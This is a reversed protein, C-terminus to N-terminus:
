VKFHSFTSDAYYFTIEHGRWCKASYPVNWIEAMEMNYQWETVTISKDDKPHIGVKTIPCGPHLAQAAAFLTRPTHHLM